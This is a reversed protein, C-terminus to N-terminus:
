TRSLKEAVIMFIINMMQFRGLFVNLNFFGNPFSLVDKKRTSLVISYQVITKTENERNEKGIM